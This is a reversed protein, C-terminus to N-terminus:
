YNHGHGCKHQGKHGKELQCTSRCKPKEPDDRGCLACNENTCAAGCTEKSFWGRTKPRGLAYGIALAVISVLLVLWLWTKDEKINEVTRLSGDEGITWTADIGTFGSEEEATWYTWIKSFVPAASKPLSVPTGPPRLGSVPRREPAGFTPSVNQGAQVGPSIVPVGDAPKSPTMGEPSPVPIGDVPKGTVPQTIVGPWGKDFKGDRDPDSFIFNGNDSVVVLTNDDSQYFSPSPRNEKILSFTHSGKNLTYVMQTNNAGGEIEVITRDSEYVAGPQFSAWRGLDYITNIFADRIKDTTRLSNVKLEGHKISKISADVPYQTEYIGRLTNEFSEIEVDPDVSTGEEIRTIGDGDGTYAAVIGNNRTVHLNFTGQFGFQKAVFAAIEKIDDSPIEPKEPAVYISQSEEKVIGGTKNRVRYSLETDNVGATYPFSVVGSKNIARTERVQDNVLFEILYPEVESVNAIVDIRYRKNDTFNSPFITKKEVGSPDAELIFEDVEPTLGTYATKVAVNHRGIQSTDPTWAMIGTVPDINMGSPARILSYTILMADEGPMNIDFTFPKGEVASIKEVVVKDAGFPLKYVFTEIRGLEDFTTVPVPTIFEFEPTVVAHTVYTNSPPDGAVILLGPSSPPKGPETPAGDKKVDTFKYEWEGTIANKVWTGNHLTDQRIYSNNKVDYVWMRDQRNKGEIGLAPNPADFSIWYTMLMEEVTINDGARTGNVKKFIVNYGWPFPCRGVYGGSGDAKYFSMQYSSSQYSGNCWIELRNGKKDTETYDLRGTVGSSCPPLPGIGKIIEESMAVQFYMVLIVIVSILIFLKKRM